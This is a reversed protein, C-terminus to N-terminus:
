PINIEIRAEKRLRALLTQRLDELYMARVGDKIKAFDATEEPKGEKKRDTVKILHLGFETEVVESVQGVPLAFAARAFSEEFAWKRPFYGVDGGEQASPCQSNAKAAQAFDLKGAVIQARLENLQARAKQRDAETAGPPLRILIHSARVTIGDFFDKFDTYYKQVDAETVHEEVYKEWRIHLEITARLSAESHGTEALYERLSKSERSLQKVLSALRQEVEAPAVTPVNAALFQGLLVQDITLMVAERERQRRRVESLEIPSPGMRRLTLELDARSIPQQNVVAVPKETPQAPTPRAPTEGTGAQAAASGALGALLIAGALGGISWVRGKM